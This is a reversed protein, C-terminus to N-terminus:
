VNDRPIRVDWDRTTLLTDGEYAELKAVVRFETASATM